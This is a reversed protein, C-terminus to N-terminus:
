HGSPAPEVFASTVIVSGLYQDATDEIRNLEVKTGPNHRAYSHACAMAVRDNTLEASDLIRGDTSTFSYKPM